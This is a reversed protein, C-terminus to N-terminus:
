AGEAQQRTVRVTMRVRILLGILSLLVLYGVTAKFYLLTMDALSGGITLPYLLFPIRVVLLGRLAPIQALRLLFIDISGILLGVLVAPFFLGVVDFDLVLEALFTTVWDGPTFIGLYSPATKIRMPNEFEARMSAPLAQMFGAVIVKGLQIEVKGRDQAQIIAAVGELGATRYSADVLTRDWVAGLDFTTLVAWWDEMKLDRIGSPGSMNELNNRVSTVGSYVLIAALVIPILTRRWKFVGAYTLLVIPLVAAIMATSRMRWAFLSGLTGLTVAMLLWLAVKRQRPSVAQIYASAALVPTVPLFGFIGHFFLQEGWSFGTVTAATLTNSFDLGYRATGLIVALFVLGASVISYKYDPLWAYRRNPVNSKLRNASFLRMSIRSGLEIGLMFLLAGVTAQTYFWVPAAPMRYSVMAAIIEPRWAALLAPILNSFGYYILVHLAMVQILNPGAADSSQGFVLARLAWFALATQALALFLGDALNSKSVFSALLWGVGILVTGWFVIQGRGSNVKRTTLM